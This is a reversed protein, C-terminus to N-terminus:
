PKVEQVLLDLVADAEAPLAFKPAVSLEGDSSRGAIFVFPLSKGAPLAAKCRTAIENPKGDPNIAEPSLILVTPATAPNDVFMEDAKTRLDLLIESQDATTETPDRLVVITAGKVTPDPTPPEPGPPPTPPPILGGLTVRKRAIQRGDWDIFLIGAVLGPKGSVACISGGSDTVWSKAEVPEWNQTEAFWTGSSSSIVLACADGEPPFTTLVATSVARGGAPDVASDQATIIPQWVIASVLCAVLIMLLTLLFFRRKSM